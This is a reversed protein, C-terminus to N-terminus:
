CLGAGRAFPRLLPTSPRPDPSAAPATPSGSASPPSPPAGPSPTKASPSSNATSTSSPTSTSPPATSASTSRSSASPTPPTPPPSPAPATSPPCARSPMPRPAPPPPPTARPPSSKLSRFAFDQADVTATVVWDGRTLTLKARRLRKGNWLAIGFEPSDLPTGNRLLTEHCGPADDSSVTLPGEFMLGCRQGDLDFVASEREWRHFLWTLFEAGLANDPSPQVDPNPTLPLQELANADVGRLRYAASEPCCLVPMVGTTERFFPCLLQISADNLASALLRQNRLDVACEMSAFTPQADRLLAETVRERVETKAARPLIEVDRARREVELEALLTARLFSPPVAKRATVHALWLWDGRWCHAETLDGDLAHLPGAWGHLPQDGALTKIPPLPRAAFREVDGPEFPKSLYFAHFSLSGSEFGM